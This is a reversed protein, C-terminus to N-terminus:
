LISLGSKLSFTIAGDGKLMEKLGERHQGKKFLIQGLNSHAEAFDPKLAIAQTCSAEAEELRGLEQLVNGLNSHAQALDPRLEIAKNLSAIAEELRGLEKLTVGLNSHAEAYDPKLEIGQTYSAEAEELRGLEKLTVGLNNHAEAYDPKLSIAQTYSAEAEELRGLEQLTNGLNSHAKANDPKLAIAQTYSAEAEELRGLEQLTAGLNFHSEADQPSLTVATQNADLAESNRGTQEFVAGLVKWAFPHKPFQETISAALAEADGYRGNQYDELLRSFQAQSPRKTDATVKSQSLLAKLRGADFGKQKAKKIAQKAGKLQNDKVLADIYSIWFQEIMPNVDLATKFLPLAAEIQNVSIAILGLNHNADPHKPHSRLIAQYVREAEQLNGSNHAAVGQQLAQEITLEM